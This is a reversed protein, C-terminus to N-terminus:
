GPMLKWDKVLAGMVYKLYLLFLQAEPPIKMAVDFECQM